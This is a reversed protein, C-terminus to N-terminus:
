AQGFIHEPAEQIRCREALYTGPCLKAAMTRPSSTGQSRPRSARAGLSFEALIETWTSLQESGASNDQTLVRGFVELILLSVIWWM